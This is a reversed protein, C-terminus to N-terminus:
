VINFLPQDYEVPQGNEVMIAEIVGSCSAEVNNMMKMAEVICLVDGKVVHQGLEVFAPSSVSAKRYFVGVMPSPIVTGTTRSEAQSQQLAATVPAVHPPTSTQTQTEVKLSRRLRVRNDGEKLYIEALSSGEILNLLQKIKGIDM